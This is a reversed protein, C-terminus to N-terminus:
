ACNDGKAHIDCWCSTVAFSFAQVTCAFIFTGACVHDSFLNDLLECIYFFFTCIYYEWTHYLVYGRLKVCLLHKLYFGMEYRLKNQEFAPFIM